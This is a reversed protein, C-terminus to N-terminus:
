RPPDMMPPFFLPDEDTQAPVNAVRGVPELTKNAVEGWECVKGRKGHRFGCSVSNNSSSDAYPSSLLYAWQGFGGGGWTVCRGMSLLYLDVFIDYLVSVGSTRNASGAFGLHVMQNSIEEPDPLRAKVTKNNLAGYDIAWRSANRADSAFYLPGGPQLETGCRVSNQVMRHWLAVANADNNKGPEIGYTRVHVSSYHGPVLQLEDLLEEVRQAIPPAPTFLVRWAYAFTENMFLETKTTANITADYYSAGYEPSQYRAALVQNM